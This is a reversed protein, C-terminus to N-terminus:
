HPPTVPLWIRVTCGACPASEIGLTGSFRQALDRAAGIGLHGPRHRPISEPDFGRGDDAITATVGVHDSSLEVSVHSASAHAVVNALAEHILRYMLAALPAEPEAALADHLEWAIDLPEFTEELYVEVAVALGDEDLATPHLEFLMRRMREVARNVAARAQGLLEAQDSPVELALRQLILSVATVAQVPDDHLDAAIQKREATLLGIVRREALHHEIAIQALRGAHRVMSDDHEAVEDPWDRRICLTGLPQSGVGSIPLCWVCEPGGSPDPVMIRTLKDPTFAARELWSGVRQELDEVVERAFGADHFVRLPHDDDSTIALAQSGPLAHEVVRCVGGLTLALPAHDAILGITVQQEDIEIEGHRSADDPSDARGTGPIESVRRGRM